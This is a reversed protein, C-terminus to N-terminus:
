SDVLIVCITKHLPIVTIWSGEEIKINVLLKFPGAHAWQTIYLDLNKLTFLFFVGM